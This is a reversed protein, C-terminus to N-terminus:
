PRLSQVHDLLEDESFPKTLYVNVGAALAQERHKKTSRSSIMIVPLDASKEQARIHTVLEIGNMRPMELDALIIDPPMEQILEVAEM